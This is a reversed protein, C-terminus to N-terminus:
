GLERRAWSGRATVLGKSLAKLLSTLNITWWVGAAGLGLPFAAAWALPVRLLNFPISLAAVTRTAGAGALVGEALAELAVFPQSWALIRAYRTAEAHVQADASFWSTLVEGGWFFAAGAALGMGTSWPLALRIAAWAREPQGAGLARGVVSSVALALGHYTPWTVGELASFGIGLAANVAPGLPSISTRLMAWYVGAYLMTGAAMPAGLRAVQGATAGLGLQVPRLGLEQVLLALGLGTTVARSLNSALAAGAIGLGLGPLGWASDFVLLPTLAVNLGLSLGQLAMPTRANGTALFVADVLPTLALPLATLALAQLYANFETAVAGQLGLLAAVAPAAIVGLASVGAGILAGLSLAEGLVEARRVPLGAGTARAVLPAAGLAAVEFLAFAAIVVFVSAGVAAQAEVSLGSVWFQDVSRFGFTLVTMGVSPVALRLLESPPLPPTSM